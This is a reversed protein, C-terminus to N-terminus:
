EKDAEKKIAAWVAQRRSYNRKFRIGDELYESHYRDLKEKLEKLTDNSLLLGALKELQKIGFVMGQATWDPVNALDWADWGHEVLWNHREGMTMRLFTKADM